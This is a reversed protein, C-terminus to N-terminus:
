SIVVRCLLLLLLGGDEEVAPVGGLGVAGGAPGDAGALNSM